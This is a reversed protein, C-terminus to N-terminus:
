AKGRFIKKIAVPTLPAGGETLYVDYKPLFIGNIFSKFMKPLNRDKSYHNYYWFDAGISEAFGRHSPLPPFVRFSGENKEGCYQEQQKMKPIEVNLAFM